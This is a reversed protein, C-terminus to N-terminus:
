RPTRPGKFRAIGGDILSPYTGTGLKDLEAALRANDRPNGSLQRFGLPVQITSGPYGIALLEGDTSEVRVPLGFGAAPDLAYFDEEYVPAPTPVPAAFSLAYANRDAGAKRGTSLDASFRLPFDPTGVLKSLGNGDMYQAVYYRAARLLAIADSLYPTDQPVLLQLQPKYFDGPEGLDQPEDFGGSGDQFTIDACLQPDYLELAARLKTGVQTPYTRVNAAPWVRLRNIGGINLGCPAPISYLM